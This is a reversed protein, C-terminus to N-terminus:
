MGVDWSCVIKWRWSAQIDKRRATRCPRWVGVASQSEMAPTDELLGEGEPRHNSQLAALQVRFGWGWLQGLPYISAHSLHTRVMPPVPWCLDSIKTPLCSRYRLRRFLPDTIPHNVIRIVNLLYYETWQFSKWSFLRVTGYGAKFGNIKKETTPFM